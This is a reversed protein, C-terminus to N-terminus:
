VSPARHRDRRTVELLYAIMVDESGLMLHYADSLKEVRQIQERHPQFVPTFPFFGFDVVRAVLGAQDV